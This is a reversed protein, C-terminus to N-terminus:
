PFCPSASFCVPPSCHVKILSRPSQAVVNRRPRDTPSGSTPWHCRDNRSQPEKSREMLRYQGSRPPAQSSQVISKAYMGREVTTDVPMARQLHTMAHIIVIAAHKNKTTAANASYAISCGALLRAAPAETAGSSESDGRTRACSMFGIAAKRSSSCSVGRGCGGVSSLRHAVGAALTLVVDVRVRPCPFTIPPTSRTCSRSVAQGKIVFRSNFGSGCHSYLSTAGDSTCNSDVICCTPLVPQSITLARRAVLECPSSAIYSIIKFRGFRHGAM